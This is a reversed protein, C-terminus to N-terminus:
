TDNRQDAPQSRERGPRANRGRSQEVGHTGVLFRACSNKAEDERGADAFRAGVIGDREVDDLANEM